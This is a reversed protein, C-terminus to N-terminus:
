ERMLTSFVGDQGVLRFGNKRYFRYAADNVILCKLKIPFGPRLQSIKEIVKPGINQSRHKKDLVIMAIYTCVDENEIQVYGVTNGSYLIMFTLCKQMQHEFNDRQWKEDWGWVKEIHHRMASEFLSWIYSQDKETVRKLVVAM